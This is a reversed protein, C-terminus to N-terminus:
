TITTRHEFSAVDYTARLMQVVHLATPMRPGSRWRLEFLAEDNQIDLSRLATFTAEAGKPLSDAIEPIEAGKALRIGVVGKQESSLWLGLIKLPSLVVFGVVSAVAGIIFQGGGFCLGIATMLWLTAATTVGTAVDGRRLIAGGGIFGVGTLIGLPLRLIDMSGNAGQSASLLLNAQIMSICAALGVLITTRLGAAHGGRERNIGLFIGAVVAALIRLGIDDWTPTIPMLDQLSSM